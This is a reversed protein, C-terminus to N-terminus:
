PSKISVLDLNVGPQALFVRAAPMNSRLYSHGRGDRCCTKNHHCVTRTEFGSNLHNRATCRNNGWDSAMNQGEWHAVTLTEKPTSRSFGATDKISFEIVAPKLRHLRLDEPAFEYAQIPISSVPPMSEVVVPNVTVVTTRPLSNPPFTIKARNDYSEVMGGTEHNVTPNFFIHVQDVERHGATDAVILRLTYRGSLSPVEWLALIDDTVPSPFSPPKSIPM